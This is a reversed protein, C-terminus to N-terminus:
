ERQELKQNSFRNLEEPAQQNANAQDNNSDMVLRTAGGCSLSEAQGVLKPLEQMELLCIDKTTLQEVASIATQTASM